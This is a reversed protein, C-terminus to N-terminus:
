SAKALSPVYAMDAKLIHGTLWSFVLSRLNLIAQLNGGDKLVAHLEDMEAIIERHHARHAEFDKYNGKEMINEEHLFHTKVYLVLANLIDQIAPEELGANMMMCLQNYLSLLILHESDIESIGTRFSNSWLLANM